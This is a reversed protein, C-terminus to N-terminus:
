SAKNAFVKVPHFTGRDKKM